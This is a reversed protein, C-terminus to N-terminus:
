GKVAHGCATCRSRIIHRPQGVPGAFLAIGQGHRPRRPAALGSGKPLPAHGAVVHQPELAALLGELAM